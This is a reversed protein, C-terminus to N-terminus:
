MFQWWQQNGMGLDQEHCEPKRTESIEITAKISPSNGCANGIV